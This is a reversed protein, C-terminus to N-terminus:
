RWMNYTIEGEGEVSSTALTSGREEVAQRDKGMPATGLNRRTRLVRTAANTEARM